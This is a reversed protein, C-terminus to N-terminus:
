YQFFFLPWFEAVGCGSLLLRFLRLRLIAAAPSNKRKIPSAYNRSLLSHSRRLLDLVPYLDEGGCAYLTLVPIYAMILLFFFLFDSPSRYEKPIWFVVCFLLLYSFLMTGFSPELRFGAYAYNPALIDVYSIDLLVKYLVTMLVTVCYGLPLRSLLIKIRNVLRHSFSPSSVSM